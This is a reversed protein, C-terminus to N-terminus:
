LKPVKAKSEGARMGFNKRPLNLYQSETDDM